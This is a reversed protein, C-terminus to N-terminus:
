DNSTLHALPHIAGQLAETPNRVVSLRPQHFLRPMSHYSKEQSARTSRHGLPESFLQSLIQALAEDTYTSRQDFQKSNSNRVANRPLTQPQTQHPYRVRRALRTFAKHCAAQSKTANKRGRGAGQNLQNTFKQGRKPSLSM